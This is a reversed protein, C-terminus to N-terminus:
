FAVPYGDRKHSLMNGFRSVYYILLNAARGPFLCPKTKFQRKHTQYGVGGQLHCFIATITM